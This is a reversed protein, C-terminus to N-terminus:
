RRGFPLRHQETGGARIEVAVTADRDLLVSLVHGVPRFTSRKRDLVWGLLAGRYKSLGRDVTIATLGLNPEARRQHCSGLPSEPFRMRM